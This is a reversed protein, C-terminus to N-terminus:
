VFNTGNVTLTFAAGGAVSTSPSLSGIAPTLAAATITFTLNGGTGGGPAPTMVSVLASGATAIDTAAIAARVQSASVFTTTRSAGNWRVVSASTFGSGNVTLTFAASGAVVSAPALSTVSPVPNNATFTAGVTASASLTVACSGTGTCAGTWGTFTSGTAAA